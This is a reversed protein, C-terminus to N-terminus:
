SLRKRKTTRTESNATKIPNRECTIWRVISSDKFRREVRPLPEAWPMVWVPPMEGWAPDEVPHLAQAGRQIPLIRGARRNAVPIERLRRSMQMSEQM